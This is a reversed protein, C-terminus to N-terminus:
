PQHEEHPDPLPIAAFVGDPDLRGKVALLRATNPGYAHAIQDHDDPGLLNPYGGPLAHPALLASGHRTWARHVEAPGPPRMAIVEVMLHEERLGFATAEGPVRTAAGHFRHLNLFATPGPRAEATEILAGVADPTLAALNRTRIDYHDGEPFLGDNVQLLQLPSLTVVDRVLPTGLRAFREVVAVGDGAGSWVPQVVVAPAGDPTSVVALGATLEDPTEAALDAYGTMVHAAEPWGFVFTGALVQAVPHARVRLSTVVGLNGGGGRLAWLLDPDDDTVVVRGDALVVEAGLIQDTALGFRGLFRGYGGGLALGALGVAGVTGGVLALGEQDAARAVDAQTAGGGVTVVDGAVSVRRMGRLDVVLGAPRVGRGAWDHGGGRVSLALGHARATRVALQVEAATRVRVVLAPRHTVAGNWVAAAADLAPGGAAVQDPDLHRALERAAEAAARDLGLDSTV